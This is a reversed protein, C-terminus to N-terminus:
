SEEMQLVSYFITYFDLSKTHPFCLLDRLSLFSVFIYPLPSARLEACLSPTHPLLSCVRKNKVKANSLLRLDAERESWKVREGWDSTEAADISRIQVEKGLVVQATLFPFLISLLENTNGAVHM